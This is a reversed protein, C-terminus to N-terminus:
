DRVCESPDICVCVAMESHLQGSRGHYHSIRQYYPVTPRLNSGGEVRQVTWLASPHQKCPKEHSWLIGRADESAALVMLSTILTSFLVPALKTYSRSALFYLKARCSEAAEFWVVCVCVLWCDTVKSAAIGLDIVMRAVDSASASRHLVSQLENLEIVMEM